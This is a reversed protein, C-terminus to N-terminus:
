IRPYFPTLRGSYPTSRMAKQKEIDKSRWEGLIKGLEAISDKSEELRVELQTQLYPDLRPRHESNSEQYWDVWNFYSRLSYATEEM